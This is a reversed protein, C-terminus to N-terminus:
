LKIETLFLYIIYNIIDMDYLNFVKLVASMVATSIIHYFFGNKYCFTKQYYFPKVKILGM